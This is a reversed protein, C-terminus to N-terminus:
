AIACDGLFQLGKSHVFSHIIMMMTFKWSDLLYSRTQQTAHSIRWHCKEQSTLCMKESLFHSFELGVRVSESVKKKKELYIKQAKTGNILLVTTLSLFHPPLAFSPIVHLLSLAVLTLNQPLGHTHSLTLDDFWHIVKHLCIVWLEHHLSTLYLPHQWSVFM